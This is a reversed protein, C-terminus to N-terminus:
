VEGASVFVFVWLFLLDFIVRFSLFIFLCGLVLARVGIFVFNDM